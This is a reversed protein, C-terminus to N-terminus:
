FRVPERAARVGGDAAAIHHVACHVPTCSATESFTERFFQTLRGGVARENRVPTCTGVRERTRGHLEGRAMGARVRPDLCDGTTWIGCCCHDKRPAAGLELGHAHPPAAGRSVSELPQVSREPIARGRARRAGIALAVLSPSAERRRSDGVPCFINVTHICIPHPRHALTVAEPAHRM